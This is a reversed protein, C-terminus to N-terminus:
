NLMTHRDYINRRQEQVTGKWRLQEGRVRDVEQRVRSMLDGSRPRGQM